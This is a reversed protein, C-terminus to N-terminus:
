ENLKKKKSSFDDILEGGTCLEMCLYIFRSDEYTEYYNVINSHDCSQILKVENHIDQIEDKSLHKKDITKIALANDSNDKNIGKYVTGFSGKGLPKKEINYTRALDSYKATTKAYTNRRKTDPSSQVCGM